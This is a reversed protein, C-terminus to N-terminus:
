IIMQAQELQALKLIDENRMDGYIYHVSQHKIAASNAPNYDVVVIDNHQTKLEEIVTNVTTHYGFILVHNKLLKPLQNTPQQRQPLPLADLLPKLQRYVAANYTILYTSIIMTILGVLAITSVLDQSIFGKALGRNAIIFSFESVQGIALGTFFATRKQQGALVLIIYVILPNGILVYLSLILTTWWLRPEITLLLQSGLYTFFIVIFFDRLSRIRAAIEYNYDLSAIALGAIFVGIALPFHLWLALSAFLLCWGISWLFLLEPSHGVFIFIKRFVFKTLIFAIAVLLITKGAMWGLDMWPITTVSNASFSELLLLAIIALFDQVLLISVAIRGYLSELQRQEGLLKIVLITSSLTLTISIFWAETISFQLIYAIAFGIIGTFIIQGFGALLTATNLERFKKVDLEIGVVYLLLAIGFSALVDILEHSRIWNLGLPGLIIGAVIFALLIPQKFIKAILALATSLLIIASLEFFIAEM